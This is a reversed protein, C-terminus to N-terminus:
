RGFKYHCAEAGSMSSLNNWCGVYNYTLMCCLSTSGGNYPQFITSVAHLVIWDILLYTLMRNDTDVHLKILCGVNNLDCALMIIKSTSMIMNWTLMIIKWTSMSLVCTFMTQMSIYNIKCPLLLDGETECAFCFLLNQLFFIVYSKNWTHFFNHLFDTYNRLFM